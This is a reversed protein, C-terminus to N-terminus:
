ALGSDLMTLANNDRQNVGEGLEGDEAEFSTYLGGAIIIM